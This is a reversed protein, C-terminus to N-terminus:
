HQFGLPRPLDAALLRMRSNAFGRRGVARVSWNSEPRPKVLLAITLFITKKISYGGTALEIESQFTMDYM